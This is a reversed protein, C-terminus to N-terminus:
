SWARARSRRMRRATRAPPTTPRASGTCAPARPTTPQARRRGAPHRERVHRLLPQRRLGPRRPSLSLLACLILAEDAGGTAIVQEAPFGTYAAIAERLPQYRSDPYRTCRCRAGAPGGRGRVLRALRAPHEPRAAAGAPRGARAGGLGGALPLARHDALDPRIMPVLNEIPLVLISRAGAARLPGLLEVVQRRDVVAHVAHMDSRALPLVTPSDLGPLLEVVSQLAQDPANLMLYRKDRAAIVSEMVTALSEAIARRAPRRPGARVLLVAESELMTAIPRLGNQRLTEGTSVLDAIAEAADLRPALEVSGHIPVLQVEVDLM